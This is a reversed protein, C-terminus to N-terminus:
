TALGMVGGEAEFIENQTLLHRDPENIIEDAAFATANDQTIKSFHWSDIYRFRDVPM